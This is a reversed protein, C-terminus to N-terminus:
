AIDTLLPRHRNPIPFGRQSTKGDLELFTNRLHSKFGRKCLFESVGWGWPEFLKVYQLKPIAEKEGPRATMTYMTGGSPSRNVTALIDKWTYNGKPDRISELMNKGIRDKAVHYVGVGETTFSYVYESKRDKGGYRLGAM